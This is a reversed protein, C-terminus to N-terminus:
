LDKKSLMLVEHLTLGYRFKKPMGLYGLGLSWALTSDSDKGHVVVGHSRLISNQVLARTLMTGPPVRGPEIVCTKGELDEIFKEVVKCSLPLSAM